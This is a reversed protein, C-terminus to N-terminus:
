FRTIFIYNCKDFIINTNIIHSDFLVLYLNNYLYANKYDGLKEYAYSINLYAIGLVISNEKNPFMKIVDLHEQKGKEYNKEIAM